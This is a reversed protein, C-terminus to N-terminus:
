AIGRSFPADLHFDTIIREASMEESVTHLGPYAACLNEFTVKRILERSPIGTLLYLQRYTFGIWWATDPNFVQDDPCAPTLVMVHELEPLLERLNDQVLNTQFPSYPVDWQTRCFSSNMFAPVFSIFTNFTYTGAVEEFINGQVTAIYHNVNNLSYDM